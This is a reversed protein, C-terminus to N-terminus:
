RGLIRDLAVGAVGRVRLLRDLDNEEDVGRRGARLRMTPRRRCRGRWCTSSCDPVAPSRSSFSRSDCWSRTSVWGSPSAARSAPSWDNSAAGPSCAPRACPRITWGAIIGRCLGQGIGTREEATGSRVRSRDLSTGSASAAGPSRLTLATSVALHFPHLRSPASISGLGVSSRRRRTDPQTRPPQLAVADDASHGCSQRGPEADGDHRDAQQEHDRRKNFPM